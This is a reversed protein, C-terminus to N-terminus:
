LGDRDETERRLEWRLGDVATPRTVGPAACDRLRFPVTVEPRVDLNSDLGEWPWQQAGCDSSPRRRVGGSVAGKDDWRARGHCVGVGAREGEWAVRQRCLSGQLVKSGTLAWTWFRLLDESGGPAPRSGRPAEAQRLGSM